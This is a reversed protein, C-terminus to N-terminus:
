GQLHHYDSGETKFNVHKWKLFEVLSSWRAGTEGSSCHVGSYHSPPRSKCPRSCGGSKPIQCYRSWLVEKLPSKSSTSVAYNSISCIFLPKASRKSWRDRFVM